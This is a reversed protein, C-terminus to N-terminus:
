RHVLTLILQVVVIVSTMAAGSVYIARKLGDIKENITERRANCLEESVPDDEKNM